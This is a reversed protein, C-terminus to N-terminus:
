NRSRRPHGARSSTPVAARSSLVGAPGLPRVLETLVSVDQRDEASWSAGASMISAPELERIVAASTSVAERSTVESETDTEGRTLWSSSRSVLVSVSLSLSAELEM